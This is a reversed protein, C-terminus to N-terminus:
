NHLLKCLRSTWVRGNLSEVVSTVNNFEYELDEYMASIQVSMGDGMDMIYRGAIRFSEADSGGMVPEGERGEVMRWCFGCDM